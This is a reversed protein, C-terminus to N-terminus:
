LAIGGDVKLVGGTIYDASLLFLVAKAIDSAKGMRKLPILKEVEGKDLNETMETEIFGPAIANVTIGKTAFERAATKTLGIIGAKSSAYNAQGANGIIGSVSSINIIRGGKNRLLIRSIERTMNFTGTLNVDIVRRWDEDSMRMLLGDRTIGANNVLAYVSTSYEKYIEEVTAKVNASDSVDCKYCKSSPSKERAMSLTKVASEESGSYLFAVRYGEDVLSLVTEKGIGRSGGTVVVLKKDNEEM